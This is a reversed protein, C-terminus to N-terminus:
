LQQVCIDTPHKGAKHLVPFFRKQKSIHSHLPPLHDHIWVQARLKSSPEVMSIPEAGWLMEMWGARQTAWVASAWTSIIFVWGPFMVWMFTLNKELTSLIINWGTEVTAVGVGRGNKGAPTISISILCCNFMRVSDNDEKLLWKLWSSSM